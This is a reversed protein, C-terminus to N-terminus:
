DKESWIADVLGWEMADEATYFCDAKGTFLRRWHRADKKTYSALLKIMAERQRKASQLHAEVYAPNNGEVDGMAFDHAMFECHVTAYREGKHGCAVLLQAASMCKGLAITHVPARITRTVDHLAYADDVSGGYSTIYLEIPKQNDTALLYLGRVAAGVTDEDVEGHLFVRRGKLDVGHELAAEIQAQTVRTM